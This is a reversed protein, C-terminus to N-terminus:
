TGSPANLDGCSRDSKTPKYHLLAPLARIVDSDRRVRALQWSGQLLIYFNQAALASKDKAMGLRQAHDDVETIWGEFLHAAHRHFEANDPGEFLTSSIPCGCWKGTIEFLDALKHCLTTAGETFNESPEFSAAILLLIQDSAWTASAMALDSKGNPFHHYMSGKPAQAKTLIEALGVGHYGHNGFLHAAARILRDKTPRPKPTKSPSTADTM